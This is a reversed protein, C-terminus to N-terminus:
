GPPVGVDLSEALEARVVAGVAIGDTDGARAPEAGGVGSGAVDPSDGRQQDGCECGVAGRGDTADVVQPAAVAVQEVAQGREARADGGDLLASM